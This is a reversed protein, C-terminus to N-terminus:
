LLIHLFFVFFYFFTEDFSCTTINSMLVQHQLLHFFKEEHLEMENKRRGRRAEENTKQGKV